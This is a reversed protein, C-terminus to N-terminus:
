GTTAVVSSKGSLTRRRRLLVFGIIALGTGLLMISSPEPVIRLQWYGAFLCPDSDSFCRNDSNFSGSWNMGSGGLRLTTFISNAFINGAATRGSPVFSFVILCGPSSPSCGGVLFSLSEMGNVKFSAAVVDAWAYGSDDFQIFGSVSTTPGASSTLVFDYIPGAVAGAVLGFYVVAAAFIRPVKM